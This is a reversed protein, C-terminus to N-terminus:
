RRSGCRATNASRTSAWRCASAIGCRRCGPTTSRCSSGPRRRDGPIRDADGRRHRLRVGGREQLVRQASLARPEGARDHHHLGRHGARGGGPVADIERKCRRGRRSLHDARDRGLAAAGAQDARRARLVAHRARTAYHYFDAFEERDKGQLILPKGGAPPRAEFGGFRNEVYSLWDGGKTYEGENVVDIGIDRQRAVVDAVAQRLTPTTMAAPAIPATPARCAASMPPSFRKATSRQMTRGAIAGELDAFEPVVGQMTGGGSIWLLDRPRLPVVFPPGGSLLSAPHASAAPHTLEGAPDSRALLLTDRLCCRTPPNGVLLNRPSAVRSWCRDSRRRDSRRSRRRCGGIRLRM